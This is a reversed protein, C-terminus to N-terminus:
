KTYIRGRYTFTGHTEVTNTSDVITPIGRYRTEQLRVRAMEKRARDVNQRANEIARVQITTM